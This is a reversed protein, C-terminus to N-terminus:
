KEDEHPTTPKIRYIITQETDISLLIKLLSNFTDKLEDLFSNLHRVENFTVKTKQNKILEYDSLFDRTERNGHLSSLIVRKMLFRERQNDENEDNCNHGKCITYTTKDKLIVKKVLEKFDDNISVEIFCNEGNKSLGQKIFVKYSEIKIKKNRTENEKDM